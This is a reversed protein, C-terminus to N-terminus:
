NLVGRLELLCDVLEAGAIAEHDGFPVAGRAAHEVADVDDLADDVPRM